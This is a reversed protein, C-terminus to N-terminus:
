KPDLWVIICLPKRPSKGTKMILTESSALFVPWLRNLSGRLNRCFDQGHLFEVLSKILDESTPGCLNLIQFPCSTQFCGTIRRYIVQFRNWCINNLLYTPRYCIKGILIGISTRVIYLSLGPNPWNELLRESIFKPDPSSLYNPDLWHHWLFNSM